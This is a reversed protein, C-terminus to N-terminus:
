YGIAHKYCGQIEQFTHKRTQLKQNLWIENAIQYLETLSLIDTPEAFFHQM